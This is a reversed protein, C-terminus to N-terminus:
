STMINFLAALPHKDKRLLRLRDYFLIKRQASFSYTSLCLEALDIYALIRSGLCDFM